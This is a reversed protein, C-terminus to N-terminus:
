MSPGASVLPTSTWHTRIATVLGFQRVADPYEDPDDPWGDGVVEVVKQFWAVNDARQRENHERLAETVEDSIAGIRDNLDALEALEGDDLTEAKDLEARRNILRVSEVVIEPAPGRNDTLLRAHEDIQRREGIRPSYITATWTQDGRTETFVIDGSPRFEFGNM